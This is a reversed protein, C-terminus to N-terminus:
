RESFGNLHELVEAVLEDAPRMGGSEKDAYIKICYDKHRFWTLQRKAYRRSALKIEECAEELTSEGKVYSLMEKYGLAPSATSEPPLMGDLYLARVEDVLGASVMLDVRRNIREYLAERDHFDLTFVKISHEPESSRTRADHWSKPKGTKDYIELARIVRKVNNKHIAEASEPDVSYLREWLATKDEESQVTSLLKERYEHDGEPASSSEARLLSDLYLGTGGVFVPLKGRSIIESMKLEADRRYAEVSYSERPDLFDILHHPARRREEPTAKATGIDMKRYIQMSDCSIIEASLREAVLLSLETKGSATPGTIAIAKMM